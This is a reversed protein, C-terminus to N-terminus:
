KMGCVFFMVFGGIGIIAPFGTWLWNLDFDALFSHKWKRQRQIENFKKNPNIEYSASNVLIEIFKQAIHVHMRFREYHKANVLAGYLGVLGLALFIINPSGIISGSISLAGALVGSLSVVIATINARYREHARAQEFNDKALEWIIIQEDLM